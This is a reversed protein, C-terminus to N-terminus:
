EFITSKKETYNEQISKELTIHEVEDGPDSIIVEYIDVLKQLSVAISKLSRVIDPIHAEHMRQEYGTM